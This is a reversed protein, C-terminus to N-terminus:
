PLRLVDAGALNGAWIRRIANLCWLRTALSLVALPLHATGEQSGVLLQVESLISSVSVFCWDAVAQQFPATGANLCCYASGSDHSGGGDGGAGLRRRYIPHDWLCILCPCDTAPERNNDISSNASIREPSSAVM